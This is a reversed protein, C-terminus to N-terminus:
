MFMKIYHILINHIGPVTIFQNKKSHQLTADTSINLDM